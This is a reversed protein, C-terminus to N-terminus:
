FVTCKCHYKKSKKSEKPKTGTTMDVREKYINTLADTIENVLCEIEFKEATKADQDLFHPVLNVSKSIITDIVAQADEVGLTFYSNKNITGFVFEDVHKILKKLGKIKDMTRYQCNNVFGLQGATQDSINYLATSVIEEIDGKYKFLFRRARNYVDKRVLFQAFSTFYNLHTGVYPILGLIQSVVQLAVGTEIRFSGSSISTSITFTNEYIFRFGKYYHKMNIQQVNDLNSLKSLYIKKFDNKKFNLNEQMDHINQGLKKLMKIIFSFEKDENSRQNVKEEYKIIGQDVLNSLESLITETNIAKPDKKIENYLDQAISMSQKLPDHQEESTTKFNGMSTCDVTDSIIISNTLAAAPKDEYSMASARMYSTIIENPVKSFYDDFFSDSPLIDKLKISFNHLHYSNNETEKIYDVFQQYEKFRRQQLLLNGKKYYAVSDYRNISLAIDCCAINKDDDLYDEYMYHLAINPDVSIAKFYYDLAEETKNQTQLVIGMYYLAVANDANLCLANTYCKIAQIPRNQRQFEIGKFTLINSLYINAIEATCKEMYDVSLRDSMISGKWFRYESDLTIPNLENAEHKLVKFDGSAFNDLTSTRM